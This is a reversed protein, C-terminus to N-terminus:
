KSKLKKNEEELQEIRAQLRGIERNLEKIEQDKKDVLSDINLYNAIVKELLKEKVVDGSADNVLGQIKNIYRNQEYLNDQAIIYHLPIDLKKSIEIAIDSDLTECELLKEAEGQSINMKNAFDAISIGKEVLAYKINDGVSFMIMDGEGYMLWSYNVKLYDALLKTIPANPKIDKTRYKSLTAQSINTGKSIKYSSVNRYRIAENLRDKFM